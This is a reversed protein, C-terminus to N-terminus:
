KEPRTKRRILEAKLFCAEVRDRNGLDSDNFSMLDAMKLHEAMRREIEETSIDSYDRYRQRQNIM